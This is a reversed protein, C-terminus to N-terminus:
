VSVLYLIVAFGHDTDPFASVDVPMCSLIFSPYLKDKLIPILTKM